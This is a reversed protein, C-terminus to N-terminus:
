HQADRDRLGKSLDNLMECAWRQGAVCDDHVRTLFSPRGSEVRPRFSAPRGPGGCGALSLIVCLAAVGLMPRFWLAGDTAADYPISLCPM